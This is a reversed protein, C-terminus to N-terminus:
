CFCRLPLSSPPSSAVVGEEEEEGTAAWSEVEITISTAWKSRTTDGIIDLWCIGAGDDDRDGM